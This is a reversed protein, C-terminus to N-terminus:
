VYRSAYARRIDPVMEACEREMALIATDVFRLPAVCRANNEMGAAIEM